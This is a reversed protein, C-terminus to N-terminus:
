AIRCSVVRDGKGVRRATNHGGGGDLYDAGKGGTLVDDGDGGHLM